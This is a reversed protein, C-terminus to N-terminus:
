KIYDLLEGCREMTMDALTDYYAVPAGSGGEWEDANAQAQAEKQSVWERQENLLKDYEEGEVEYRVIDWLYNLCYDAIEYRCKANDVMEATSTTEAALETYYDYSEKYHNYNMTADELASLREFSCIGYANEEDVIIPMTLVVDSDNYYSIWIIIDESLMTLPTGPLYVKFTDNGGLCYADTYIYRIGDEIEETGPVEKYHIERMTMEYTYEDIKKLNEFYGSYNSSYCTGYPYADANSGMDSDYYKGKFYGDREINFEESWGGAGSSFYYSYQSLVEFTLNDIIEYNVEETENNEETEGNNETEKEEEFESFDELETNSDSEANEESIENVESNEETQDKEPEASEEIEINEQLILDTDINESTNESIHNCAMFTCVSLITLFTFCVKRKM